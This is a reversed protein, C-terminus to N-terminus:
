PIKGIFFHCLPEAYLSAGLVRNIGIKTLVSCAISQPGMEVRLLVRRQNLCLAGQAVGRSAIAVRLALEIM